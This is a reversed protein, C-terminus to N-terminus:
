ASKRRCTGDGGLPPSLNGKWMGGPSSLGPSGVEEAERGWGDWPLEAGATPSKILITSPSPAPACASSRALPLSAAWAGGRPQPM